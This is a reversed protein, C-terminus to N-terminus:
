VTMNGEESSNSQQQLIENSRSKLQEQLRANEEQLQRILNETPTENVRATTRVRKVQEALFWHPSSPLSVFNLNLFITCFDHMINIM